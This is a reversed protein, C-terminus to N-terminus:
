GKAGYAYAGASLLGSLLSSTGNAKSIAANGINTANTNNNGQVQASYNNAVGAQASAASLGVGQQGQLQGLYGNFDNTAYDQGYKTLGKLTSGSNLLGSVAANGTIARTGENLRSTYGTSTKYADYANAATGPALGAGGAAVAGPSSIGLLQNIYSTAAGGQQVFPALTAANQNYTQQALANNAATNDQSAQTAAKSAKSSAKSSLVGGLLSAGGLVAAATGIVM